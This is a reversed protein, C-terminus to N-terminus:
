LDKFADVFATQTDPSAKVWAGRGVVWRAMYNFEIHPFVIQKILGDLVVPDKDIETRHERVASLMDNTLTQLFAVPDAVPEKLEQASVVQASTWLVASWLAAQFAIKISALM